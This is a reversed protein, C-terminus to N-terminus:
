RKGATQRHTALLEFFTKVYRRPAFMTMALERGRAAMAIAGERDNAYRMIAQALAESDGESTLLGTQGDIVLDPIGAISTAVVPVRHLLAEIIVTPLGDSDGNPKRISPMALMDSELLLTPVQSHPLFGTFRVSERLNLRDVLTSLPKMWPGDGALTLRADLGRARVLSLAEVLHQFGKTKVFRGVACIKVPTNMRVPAEAAPPLTLVDYLLCVKDPTHPIYKRLHPLLFSSECLAFSTKALKHGLLGDPPHVDGARSSFSFTLGNLEAACWAATASGNAWAAHVHEVGLEKFRRALCVGCLVALLNEGYKELGGGPSCLARGLLSLTTVPQAVLSLLFALIIRPAHGLGLREVTMGEPQMTLGANIPGYLSHVTLPLGAERLTQAESVVFT